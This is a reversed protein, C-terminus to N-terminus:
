FISHCTAHDSAGSVGGLSADPEAQPRRGLFAGRAVLRLDASAATLSGSRERLVQRSARGDGLGERVERPDQYSSSSSRVWSGKEVGASRCERCSDLSSGACRHVTGGLGSLRSPARGRPRATGAEADFLHLRIARGDTPLLRPQRALSHGIGHPASRQIRAKSRPSSRLTATWSM